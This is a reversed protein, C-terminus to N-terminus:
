AVLLMPEHPVVVVVDDQPDRFRHWEGLTLTTEAQPEDHLPATLTFKPRQFTTTTTM